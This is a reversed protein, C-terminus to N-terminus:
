SLRGAPTNGRDRKEMDRTIEDLRAWKKEEEINRKIM